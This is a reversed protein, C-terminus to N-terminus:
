KKRDNRKERIQKLSNLIFKSASLKGMWFVMFYSSVLCTLSLFILLAKAGEPMADIKTAITIM